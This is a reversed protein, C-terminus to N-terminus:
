SEGSLSYFKMIGRAILNCERDDEKSIIWRACRKDCYVRAAEGGSNM